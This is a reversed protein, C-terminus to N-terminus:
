WKISFDVLGCQHLCPSCKCISLLHVSTVKGLTYLLDLACCLSLGLDESSGRKEWVKASKKRSAILFWSFPYLIAARVHEAVLGRTLLVVSLSFGSGKHSPFFASPFLM